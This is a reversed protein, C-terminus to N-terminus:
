KRWPNFTPKPLNKRNQTPKSTLAAAATNTATVMAALADNNDKNDDYLEEEDELEYYFQARSDLKIVEDKTISVQELADCINAKFLTKHTIRPHINFFYGITRIMEWGLSDVELYVHNNTLWEMMTHDELTSKKLETIMKNSLIHCGITVKNCYIPRKPTLHVFFFEKFEAEKMPMPDHAPYLLEDTNLSHVVIDPDHRIWEALLNKVGVAPNFMTCPQHPLEFVIRLEMDVELQAIQGQQHTSQAKKSAKPQTVPIFLDNDTEQTAM